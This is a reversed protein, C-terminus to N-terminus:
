TECRFTFVCCLPRICEVLRTGCILCVGVGSLTYCICSSSFPLGCVWKIDFYRGDEADFLVENVLTLLLDSVMLYSISSRSLTMQGGASEGYANDIKSSRELLLFRFLLLMMLPLLLLWLAVVEVFIPFSFDPLGILGEFCVIVENVNLSAM